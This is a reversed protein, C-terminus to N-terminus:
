KSATESLSMKTIRAERSQPEHIASRARSVSLFDSQGIIIIYIVIVLIIKIVLILFRLM